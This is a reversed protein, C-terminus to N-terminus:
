RGEIAPRAATGGSLRPLSAAPDVADFLTPRDASCAFCCGVSKDWRRPKVWSRCAPCQISLIKLNRRIPM